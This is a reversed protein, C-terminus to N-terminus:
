KIIQTKSGNNSPRVRSLSGFFSQIELIILVGVGIFSFIFSLLVMLIVQWFSGHWITILLIELISGALLFFLFKFKNSATFFCSFLYVFGLLGMVLGYYGLFAAGALYGRGFFLFLMEKSFLFFILSILIIISFSVLIAIKLAPIYNEKQAHKSVVIPFMIGAILSIAIFIAQGLTSFASYVGTEFDPFYHKVLIKDINLLISLFGFVLFNYLAYKWIERAGPKERNERQKDGTEQRKNNGALIDGVFYLTLLYSLIIALLFGTLAGVMKFGLAVLGVAFVVRAASEVVSSLTFQSFNKLGHLIGRGVGLFLTGVVIGALFYINNISSLRLFNKLTKAFILTLIILVLSVLFIAKNLYRYLEKIKKIGERSSDSASDFDEKVEFVASFRAVTIQISTVLVTLILILSIIAILEGFLEPGLMRGMLVRYLYFLINTVIGGIFFIAGKRFYSNKYLSKLDNVLLQRM